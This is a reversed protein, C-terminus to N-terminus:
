SVKLVLLTRLIMEIGTYVKMILKMPSVRVITPNMTMVGSMKKVSLWRVKVM